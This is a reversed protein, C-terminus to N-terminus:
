DGDGSSFTIAIGLLSSMDSKFFRTQKQAEVALKDLAAPNNTITTSLPLDPLANAAAVLAAFQTKSNTVLEKGGVVSNLYEEFGIGDQGNIARGAWINDIAKLYERLFKVSKGSYYGEVKTPETKIQGVRKGAPILIRFNRSDEYSAVFENYLQSTSSGVDTGNNKIFAETQTAWAVNVDDIKKKIDAAVNQLYQKRATATASYKKLVNENGDLDFLLYDLALFGRTDRDFNDFSLSNQRIKSEILATNVPFIAINDNLSGFVPLDAAGFNFANCHLWAMYADEWANQAAVLNAANSEAVFKKTAADLADTKTKLAAFNPKIINNAMNELLKSRDFSTQTNSNDKSCAWILFASFFLTIFSLYKMRNSLLHSQL